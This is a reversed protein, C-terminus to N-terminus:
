NDLQESHFKSFTGGNLHGRWGCPAECKLERDLSIRDPYGPPALGATPVIFVEGCDPCKIALAMIRDSSNMFAPCISGPEMERFSKFDETVTSKMPKNM